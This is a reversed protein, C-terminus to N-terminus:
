RRPVAVVTFQAFPSSAWRNWGVRAEVYWLYVRGVALRTTDPLSAVTDALQAEYVPKGGTDFITVRYRDAGPVASWRLVRAEAVAAVPSLPVPAPASTITPGRHRAGDDVTGRPRVLFIGLAAAAVAPFLYRPVRRRQGRHLKAIEGAVRTDALGRVVSAVAGRCHGCSAVHRAAADRASAELTGDVVAAITEEDLCDPGAVGSHAATARLLASMEDRPETM